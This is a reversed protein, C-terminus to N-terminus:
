LNRGLHHLRGQATPLGSMANAIAGHTSLVEKVAGLLKESTFPKALFGEHQESCRKMQEAYGTIYLVKLDPNERTLRSALEMGTEGPLVVDTLLLDAAGEVEEFIRAAEAATRAAIVSYGASRLVERTVERVFSEDEVLLITQPVCEEGLDEGTANENTVLHIGM